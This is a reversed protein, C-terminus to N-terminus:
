ACKKNQVYYKGKLTCHWLKAPMIVRSESLDHYLELADLLEMEDDAALVNYNM